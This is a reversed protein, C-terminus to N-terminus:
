ETAPSVSAKAATAKGSRKRATPKARKRAVHKRVKAILAHVTTRDSMLTALVLSGSIHSARCVKNFWTRDAPDVRFVIAKGANYSKSKRRKAM